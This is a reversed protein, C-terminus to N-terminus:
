VFAPIFNGKIYRRLYKGTRREYVNVYSWRAHNISLFLAFKTLNHVFTWKKVNNSNEFFVVCSYDNKHKRQLDIM